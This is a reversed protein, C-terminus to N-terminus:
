LCILTIGNVAYVVLSIALFLTYRLGVNQPSLEEKVLLVLMKVSCNTAPIAVKLINRTGSESEIRSQQICRSCPFICALTSLRMLPHVTQFGQHYLCVLSTCYVPCAFLYGGKLCKLLAIPCNRKDVENLKQKSWLESHCFILSIKLHGKM